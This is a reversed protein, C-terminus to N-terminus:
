RLIFCFAIRVMLSDPLEMRDPKQKFVGLEHDNKTLYDLIKNKM